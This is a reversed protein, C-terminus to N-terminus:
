ELWQAKNHPRGKECGVGSVNGYHMPVWDEVSAAFGGPASVM